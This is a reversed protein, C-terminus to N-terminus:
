IGALYSLLECTSKYIKDWDSSVKFTKTKYDPSDTLHYSVNQGNCLTRKSNTMFVLHCCFDHKNEWPTHLCQHVATYHAQM